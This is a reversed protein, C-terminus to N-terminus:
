TTDRYRSRVNCFYDKLLRVNVTHLFIVRYKIFRGKLCLAKENKEWQNTTADILVNAGTLKRRFLNIEARNQRLIKV